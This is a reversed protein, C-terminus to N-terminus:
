QYLRAVAALEARLRPALEHREEPDAGIAVAIGQGKQTLGVYIGKVVGGNEYRTIIKTLLSRLKLSHTQHLLRRLAEVGQEVDDFIQPEALDDDIAAMDLIIMDAPYRWFSRTAIVYCM